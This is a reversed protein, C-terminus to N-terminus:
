GRDAPADTSRDARTRSAPRSPQQSLWLVAAYYDIEHEGDFITLRVPGASRRFLIPTRRRIDREWTDTLSSPVKQEKVMYQVQEDSLGQEAHGNARALVNFARLSHDITVPGEYGDHIGANIDIPLDKAADLHFLPSRKRYERDTAETGPPGGCVAHLNRVYRPVIRQSQRHLDFLNTQAGWVSVAAWQEPYRHALTLAMHGGGSCGVLYVRRPDVRANNQAYEVADLVDQVALDSACAEPRVNPGRYHPRIMVFGFKACERRYKKWSSNGYSGGWSHLAVLLPVPDNELKYCRAENPVFFWAPQRLGDVSSRIHVRRCVPAGAADAQGRDGPPTILLPTCSLL